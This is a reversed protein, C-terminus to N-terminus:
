GLRASLTGSAAGCTSLLMLLDAPILCTGPALLHRLAADEERISLLLKELSSGPPVARSSKTQFYEQIRLHRLCKGEGSAM